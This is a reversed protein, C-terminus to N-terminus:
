MPAPDDMDLERNGIQSATANSHGADAVSWCLWCRVRLTNRRADTTLRNTAEFRTLEQALIRM